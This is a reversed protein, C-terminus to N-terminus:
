RGVKFEIPVKFKVGAYKRHARWLKLAAVACQDLESYGSSQLVRVDSVRGDDAIRGYLLVKGTHRLRRESRPYSPFPAFMWWDTREWDNFYARRDPYSAALIAEQRFEIEEVRGNTLDSPKIASPKMKWKLVTNRAVEDLVPDGSSKVIAASTVSGDSTLQLRLKVSGESGKQLSSPPFKPKPAEAWDSSAGRAFNLGGLLSVILAIYAAIKV